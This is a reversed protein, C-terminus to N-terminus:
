LTDTSRAVWDGKRYTWTVEPVCLFRAGARLARLWLNWDEFRAEPDYGGIEDFVSRRIFATVPIFNARLLAKARFLRNPSWNLGEVRCWTYVIDANDLFLSGIEVHDPDLLDDDDLPILWEADSQEALRNRITAPGERNADLMTLHQVPVTQASVSSECESLM